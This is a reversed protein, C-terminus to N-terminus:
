LLLKRRSEACRHDADKRRNQVIAIACHVKLRLFPQRDSKARASYHSGFPSRGESFAIAEAKAILGNQGAPHSSDIRHNFQHPNLDGLDYRYSSLRQISLPSRWAIATGAGTLYLNFALVKICDQGM